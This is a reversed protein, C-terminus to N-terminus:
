GDSLEGFPTLQTRVLGESSGLSAKAQHPSAKSSHQVREHQHYFHRFYMRFPRPYMRSLGL